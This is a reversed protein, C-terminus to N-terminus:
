FDVIDAFVKLYTTRHTKSLLHAFKSVTPETKERKWHAIMLLQYPNKESRSEQAMLRQPTMLMVHVLPLCTTQSANEHVHCASVLSRHTLLPNMASNIPLLFGASAIYADPSLSVGAIRLSAMTCVPIWCFFDTMLLRSIRKQM